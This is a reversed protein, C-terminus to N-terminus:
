KLESIMQMDAKHRDVINESWQYALDHIYALHGIANIPEEGPKPNNYEDTRIDFRFGPGLYNYCPLHNEGPYRSWIFGPLKSSFKQIDGGFWQKLNPSEHTANHFQTWQFSYSANKILSIHTNIEFCFSYWAPTKNLPHTKHQM